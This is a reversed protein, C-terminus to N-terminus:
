VLEQIEMRLFVLIGYEGSNNSRVIQRNTALCVSLQHCVLQPWITDSCKDIHQCETNEKYKSIYLNVDYNKSKIFTTGREQCMVTKELVEFVNGSIPKEFEGYFDSWGYEPLQNSDIELSIHNLPINKLKPPEELKQRTFSTEKTKPACKSM